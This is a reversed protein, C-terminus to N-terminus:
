AAETHKPSYLSRVEEETIGDGRIPRLDSDPVVIWRWNKYDGFRVNRDKAIWHILFNPSTPEVEWEGHQPRSAARLVKVIQGINRPQTDYVVIALDGPKCNM